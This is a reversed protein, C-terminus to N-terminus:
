KGAEKADVHDGDNLLGRGETVVKAGVALDTTDFFLSGGREGRVKLTRAKAVGDEVVFLTAKEGNTSTASVPIEATSVGDGVEIRVEGTTDVPM